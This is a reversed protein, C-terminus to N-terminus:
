TRSPFVGQLAISFNMALYPQENSHPQSGGAYGIASASLAVLPSPASYHNTPTAAWIGGTPATQTAATSSAVAPHGHVPMETSILTHNVEGGSQGLAINSLGPSQGWHLPARGRLDPLAYNTQGNGGYTTGLLAFLAQNQQIALLQGSCTAWGRPNFPFGFMRIEALFPTAM